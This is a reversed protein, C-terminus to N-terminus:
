DSFVHFPGASRHTDRMTRRRRRQESPTPCRVGSLLDVGGLLVDVGGVLDGLGELVNTDADQVVDDHATGALVVEAKSPHAHHLDTLLVFPPGLPERYGYDVVPAV